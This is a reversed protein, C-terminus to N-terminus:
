LTTPRPSRWDSETVQGAFVTFREGARIAPRCVRYEGALLPPFVGTYVLGTGVATVAFITRPVYIRHLLASGWVLQRMASVTAQSLKLESVGPVNYVV